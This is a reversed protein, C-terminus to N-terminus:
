GELLRLTMEREIAGRDGFLGWCEGEVASAISEVVIGGLHALRAETSLPNLPDIPLPATPDLALPDAGSVAAPDCPSADGLGAYVNSPKPEGPPRQRLLRLHDLLLRQRAQTHRLALSLASAGCLHAARRDALLGQLVEAGEAMISFARHFAQLTLHRPNTARDVGVRRHEALTRAIARRLSRGLAPPADPHGSSASLERAILARLAETSLGDLGGVGLVLCRSTPRELLATMSGIDVLTTEALPHLCVEDPPSNGTLLAANLILDRLRPHAELDLPPGPAPPRIPRLAHRALALMVLGIGAALAWGQAETVVRADVLGYCLVAVAGVVLLAALAGTLVFWFCAAWLIRQHSRQRKLLGPAAGQDILAHAEALAGRSARQGLFTLLAMGAILLVIAVLVQRYWWFWFPRQASIDANFVLYIDDKLGLERARDLAAKAGDLDGEIMGMRAVFMHTSIKDPATRLLADSCVKLEEASRLRTAITCLILYGEPEDPSLEVAKLASARALPLDEASSDGMDQEDELYAFALAAHDKSTGGEAIAEKCLRIAEDRNYLRSETLCLRRTIPAYGRAHARVLILFRETEADDRVRRAARVEKFLEVAEPGFRELDRAIQADEDEREAGQGAASSSWLSLALSMCGLWVWSRLRMNM